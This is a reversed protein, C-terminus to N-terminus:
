CSPGADLLASDVDLGVVVVPRPGAHPADEAQEVLVAHLVRKIGNRHRNLQIRLNSSAGYPLPMINRTM